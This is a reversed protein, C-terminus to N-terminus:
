SSVVQFSATQGTSSTLSLAGSAPALAYLRGSAGAPVTVSNGGAAFTVPASGSNTVNLIVPKDPVVGDSVPAFSAGDFTVNLVAGRRADRYINNALRSYESDSKESLWAEYDAKPLVTMTTKMLAHSTGCIQVCVNQVPGTEHAKFWLTNVEGPIADVRIRYPTIAFNHWVDQSTINMVVVTEVPVNWDGIVQFPIGGTGTYNYKWGFQFGTVNYYLAPEDTPPKEIADVASITYFALGFMIIAIGAALAWSWIAHGREAPLVGAIPADRPRPSDETARFRWLSYFLWGIVVGGVILAIVLYLNFLSNFIGQSVSSTM